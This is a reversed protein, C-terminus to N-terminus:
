RSPAGGVERLLDRLAEIDRFLVPRAGPNRLAYSPHYLPLVTRGGRRQPRGHVEGIRAGPLFWGLSHRGLTVVIRPRVLALQGELWPGCAAIEAPRPPRDHPPAARTAARHKVLNTIYVAERSLGAHALLDDLLRGAPGVFPRGTRDEERGPGEGVLMVLARPDGEGPVARTATEWLPCRRCRAVQAHLDALTHPREPAAAGTGRAGPRGTRRRRGAPSPAVRPRAAVRARSASAPVM